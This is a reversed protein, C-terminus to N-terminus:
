RVRWPLMHIRINPISLRTQVMVYSMVAIILYFWVYRSLNYLDGRMFIYFGWLLLTFYFVHFQGDRSCVARIALTWGFAMMGLVCAGGAIGFHMILDGYGTVLVESRTLRWRQPSLVATAHASGGWPKNKVIARPVPALLSGLVLDSPPRHLLAEGHLVTTLVEANSIEATGFFVNLVGGKAQAFDGISDHRFSERFLFRQTLLFCVLLPLLCWLYRRPITLNFRYMTALTILGAALVPGRKGAVMLSLAILVGCLLVPLYRRTFTGFYALLPIVMTIAVDILPSQRLMLQHAVNSGRSQWIYRLVCPLFLMMGAIVFLRLTGPSPTPMWQLSRLRDFFRPTRHADVVDSRIERQPLYIAAMVGILVVFHYGTFVALADIVSGRRISQHHEFLTYASTQDGTLILFDLLFVLDLVLVFTAPAIISRGLKPSEISRLLLYTGIVIALNCGALLYILVTM